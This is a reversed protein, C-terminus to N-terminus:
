SPPYPKLTSTESERNRKGSVLCRVGSVRLKKEPSAFTVLGERLDLYRPAM